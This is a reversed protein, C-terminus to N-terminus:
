ARLRASGHTGDAQPVSTRFMLRAIDVSVSELGIASLLVFLPTFLFMYRPAVEFLMLFCSLGLLTLSLVPVIPKRGHVRLAAYACLLLVMLWVGQKIVAITERYEGHADYARRLFLASASSRAPKDVELISRNSAFTGDAYAKYTKISFFKLAGGVGMTRLRELAVDINARRREALTKFSRSFDVDDQFYSGYTDSNLGMMLYHTECLQEQPTDSGAILATSWNRWLMAPAIGIVMALAATIIRKLLAKGGNRAALAKVSRCIVLAIWFILEPPKITFGLFCILTVALWKVFRNQLKLYAYLALVPFVMAFTDTYPVSMFPSLGLWLACLVFAANADARSKLLKRACLGTLLCTINVILAGSYPLVAYPVALGLKIAIWLPVAISVTFPANNPCLRFYDTTVTGYRALEEAAVRCFEMDRGAYYWTDHVVFLQVALLVINAILLGWPVGDSRGARTLDAAAERRSLRWALWLAAGATLLIAAGAITLNAIPAECTFYRTYEEQCFLMIVLLAIVLAGYLLSFVSLLADSISRQRQRM